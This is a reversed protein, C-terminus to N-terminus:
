GAARLGAVLHEGFHALLAQKPTSPNSRDCQPKEMKRIEALKRIGSKGILKKLRPDSPVSGFGGKATVVSPGSGITLPCDPGIWWDARLVLRWARRDVLL